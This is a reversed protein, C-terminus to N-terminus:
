LIKLLHGNERTYFGHFTLDCLKCKIASHEGGSIGVGVSYM